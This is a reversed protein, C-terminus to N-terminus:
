RQTFATDVEDGSSGAKLLCVGNLRRPDVRDDRLPNLSAAMAADEIRGGVVICQARDHQGPQQRSICSQRDDCSASDHVAGTDSSRKIEARNRRLEAGREHRAWFGGRVVGVAGGKGPRARVVRPQGRQDGTSRCTRKWVAEGRQRYLKSIEQRGVVWDSIVGSFSEVSRGLRAALM